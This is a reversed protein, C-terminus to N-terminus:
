VSTNTSKSTKSLFHPSTAQKKDIPCALFFTPKHTPQHQRNIRISCPSLFCSCVPRTINFNWPIPIRSISTKVKLQLALPILSGRSSASQHFLAVAQLLPFSLKHSKDLHPTRDTYANKTKFQIGLLTTGITCKQVSDDTRQAYEALNNWKELIQESLVLKCCESNKSTIMKAEM